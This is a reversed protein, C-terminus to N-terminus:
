RVLWLIAGIWAGLIVALPGLVILSLPGQSSNTFAMVAFVAVTTLAVAIAASAALRRVYGFFLVGWGEPKRQAGILFIAACVAFGVVLGIVILNLVTM